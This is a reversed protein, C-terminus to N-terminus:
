LTTMMPRTVEVLKDGEAVNDGNRVFIKKVMGDHPAQIKNEMKMSEMVLLDQGAKVTDGENTLIELIMGPLPSTVSGALGASTTVTRAEKLPAEAEAPQREIRRVPSPSIESQGLQELEVHYEKDDVVIRAYEATIEKVRAKYEKGGISLVYERM